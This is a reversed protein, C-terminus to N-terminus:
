VQTTSQPPGTRVEAVTCCAGDLTCRQSGVNSRSLEDALLVELCAFGIALVRSWNSNQAWLRRRAEWRHVVKVCNPSNALSYGHKEGTQWGGNFALQTEQICTIRLDQQGAIHLLEELWGAVCSSEANFSWVGIGSFGRKRRHIAGPSSPCVLSVSDSVLLWELHRCGVSASGLDAVLAFVVPHQERALTDPLKLVTTVTSTFVHCSESSRLCSFDWPVLTVFAPEGALLM